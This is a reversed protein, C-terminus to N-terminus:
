LAGNAQLLTFIEEAMKRYGKANLHISDSKLSPSKLLKSMLDKAFIVDHENALEAYIPAASSFLNKEPVGILLISINRSKAELLMLSLNNKAESFSLNQLIDNGGELLIILKPNYQDLVETFRLLGESTTEGSIGANIVSRGSLEALVSPYSNELTTGYGATLSDGFALITDSTSVAQLPKANCATLLVTIIFLFLALYYNKYMQMKKHQQIPLKLYNNAM